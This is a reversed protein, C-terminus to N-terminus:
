HGDGHAAATGMAEIKLPASIKDGDLFTVTLETTDGAKLQADVEFAM